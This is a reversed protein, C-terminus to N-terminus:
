PHFLELLAGYNASEAVPLPSCPSSHSKPFAQASLFGICRRAQLMTKQRTCVNDAEHLNRPVASEQFSDKLSM